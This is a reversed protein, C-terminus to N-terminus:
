CIRKYIEENIPDVGLGYFTNSSSAIFSTTPLIANNINMSYVSSNLFYLQNGTVNITLRNPSDAVNPFIFTAEITRNQPNYRILKPNTENFGGDCLIWLKNNQDVVISNPQRGLKVSDILTNNTPNIILLNDNTMDCVYVTDNHLILEEAWGSLVISGTIVNNNLDVIQISNSYLDTVYAKNNDM